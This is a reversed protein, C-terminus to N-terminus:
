AAAHTHLGWGASVWRAMGDDRLGAPSPCSLPTPATSPLLPPLPPNLRLTTPHPRCMPCMLGSATCRTCAGPLATSATAGGEGRGGGERGVVVCWVGGGAGALAPCDSPVGGPCPITHSSRGHPPSNRKRGGGALGGFSMPLFARIGGDQGDDDDDGNGEGGDAVTQMCPALCATCHTCPRHPDPPSTARAPPHAPHTACWLM